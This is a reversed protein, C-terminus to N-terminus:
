KADLEKICRVCYASLDTATTEQMEDSDATLKLAKEWVSTGDQGMVWFITGTGYLGYEARSGTSDVYVGTPTASFRSIDNGGWASGYKMLSADKHLYAKLMSWDYYNAIRYGKPALTGSVVAAKNYFVDGDSNAFYGAATTTYTTKKTINKGNTYYKAKLNSCTWCQTGIKVLPYYNVEDGRVDILRQEWVFMKVCDNTETATLEGNSRMWLKYPASEKGEVYTFTNTVTNWSVKGGHKNDTEGVVRIVKGDTLDVNGNKYPYCVLAKANIDDNYLYEMCLLAVNEGNLTLRRIPCSYFDTKALDLYDREVATIYITAADVAEGWDGISYGLENGQMSSDFNIVLNMENGATFKYESSLKISYATTGVILSILNRETDVTQPLIIAQKGILTKGSVSWTGNPTISAMDGYDTLERTNVNYTASTYIENIYLKPNANLLQEVDTDDTVNIKFNVRSFRHEYTLDVPSEDAEVNSVEATRFDSENYDDDASQDTKVSVAMEYSKSKVGEEQYPFYSFINCKAGKPYYAKGNNDYFGGSTIIYKENDVYRSKNISSSALTAYLGVGEERKSDSDYVESHLRYSSIKIAIDSNEETNADDSDDITGVCAALLMVAAAACKLITTKNKM